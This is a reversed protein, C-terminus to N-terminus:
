TTENFIVRWGRPTKEFIETFVGETNGGGKKSRMLKYKGTALAFNEGLERVEVESNEMTGMSEKNPFNLHFMARVNAIGRVPGALLVQTDPADKFHALYGDLDARNWANEQAIIVKTVALQEQTATYLQDGAQGILPLTCFSLALLAAHRFM